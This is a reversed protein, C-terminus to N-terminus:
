VDGGNPGRDTIVVLAAASDEPDPVRDDFPPNRRAWAIFLVIALAVIAIVIWRTVGSPETSTAAPPTAGDAESPVNM